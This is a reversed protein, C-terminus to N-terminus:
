KSESRFERDPNDRCELVSKRTYLVPNLEGKLYKLDSKLEESFHSNQLLSKEHTGLNKM